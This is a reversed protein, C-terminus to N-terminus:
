GCHASTIANATDLMINLRSLSYDETTAMGPGVWRISTVPKVAAELEVKTAADATRGAFENAKAANCQDKGSVAPPPVAGNGADAIPGSSVPTDPAITAVPDPTDSGDRGSPADCASLSVAVLFALSRPLFQTM